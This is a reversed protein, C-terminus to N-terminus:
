YLGIPLLIDDSRRHFAELLQFAKLFKANLVKLEVKWEFLLFLCDSKKGVLDHRFELLMLVRMGVGSRRSYQNAGADQMLLRSKNRDSQSDQVEIRQKSSIGCDGTSSM